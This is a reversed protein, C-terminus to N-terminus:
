EGIIIKFINGLFVGADFYRGQQICQVFGSLNNLIYNINEGINKFFNIINKFFKGFNEIYHCDGFQKYVGYIVQYLETVIESLKNFDFTKFFEILTPIVKFATKCSDDITNSCTKDVMGQGWGSWIGCVIDELVPSASTFSLIALFFVVAKM